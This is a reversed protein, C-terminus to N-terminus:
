KPYAAYIRRLLLLDNDDFYYRRKKIPFVGSNQWKNRWLFIAYYDHLSSVIEKVKEISIQNPHYEKKEISIGDFNYIKHSKKPYTPSSGHLELLRDYLYPPLVSYHNGVPNRSVYFQGPITSITKHLIKATTEDYNDELGLSLILITNENVKLRELISKTKLKFKRLIRPSKRKILSNLRKPNAKPLIERKGCVKHRRCFGNDIYVFLLHRRSSLRNLLKNVCSFNQGFSTSLIAVAPAPSEKIAKVAKHCPFKSSLM